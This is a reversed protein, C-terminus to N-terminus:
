RPLRGGDLILVYSPVLSVDVVIEQYADVPRDFTGWLGPMRHQRIDLVVRGRQEYSHNSNAIVGIWEDGKRRSFVLIDSNASYGLMFTQPSRDAIMSVFMKRLKLAYRVSEILNNPRTWDFSWPSFLPLKEPPYQALQENTFGVGTNMPQTEGLEFGTLIFPLAPVTVALALAYHAYAWGGPRSMARPTNHNEPAAFFPIPLSDHAMQNFMHRMSEGQHAGLVWWGMVANYGEDRTRQGITFNEDWFAFDPNIQRATEIVRRKLSNPLAHGMDIMVGDIGFDGQYHPIVGTIADWLPVSCYEFRTLAEDYMRVTNYAIYNFDPHNYLRLFTVDTWPPQIDDPPWDTFASPIRVRVGSDLIAFYRGNEMYVQEPRPPETFMGQYLTPPPPLEKFDGVAVKAKIIALTESTFIPAGYAGLRGTGRGTRDPIEARIWYFWDPHYPIWDSDRSATRLVFELVVRLGLRHAGEVFGAFLQEATLGLVPEALNPDLQYPNRIAYPSGLIGKKGDQGVSAIPLLHVTNFGMDRIYPLLAICKLLTGIECWGDSRGNLNGDGNHDFAATVRPFLNYIVAHQTWEGGGPGQVLPQPEANAIELLRKRYFEFPDVQVAPTSVGDLWLGPLWYPEALPQRRAELQQVIDYLSM